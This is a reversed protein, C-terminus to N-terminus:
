INTEVSLCLRRSQVVQKIYSSVPLKFDACHVIALPDIDHDRTEKALQNVLFQWIIAGDLKSNMDHVDDSYKAIFACMDAKTPFCAM